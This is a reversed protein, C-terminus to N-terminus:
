VEFVSPEIFSLDPRESPYGVPNCVFSTSGMIFDHKDHTHGYIWMKPKVTNANALYLECDRNVFYSQTPSSAWLSDPATLPLHHTVVIDEPKLEDKLYQLFQESKNFAWPFLGPIQYSDSIMKKYLHVQPRDPFWMTDGLFRQGMYVHPAGTRLVTLNPCLDEISELKANFGSTGILLSTGYYEHNGPVYIVHKFLSCLKVFHQTYVTEPLIFNTLDGACVCVDVDNHIPLDEWYKTEQGQRFELHLDSIIQIRM